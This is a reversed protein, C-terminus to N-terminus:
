NLTGHGTPYHLDLRPVYPGLLTSRCVRAMQHGALLIKSRKLSKWGTVKGLFTMGRVNPLSQLRNAEHLAENESPPERYARELAM